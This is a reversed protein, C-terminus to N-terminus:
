DDHANSNLERLLRRLRGDARSALLEEHRRQLRLFESRTVNLRELRGGAFWSLPPLPAAGEGALRLMRAAVGDFFRGAAPEPPRPSRRLQRRPPRECGDAWGYGCRVSNFHTHLSEPSFRHEEVGLFAQLAQLALLPRREFQETYLVLLQEAPFHRLWNLLFVPYDSWGAVNAQASCYLDAAAELEADGPRLFRRAQCGGHQMWHLEDEVRQEFTLDAWYGKMQQQEVFRSEARALPERLIAILKLDPFLSRFKEPCCPCSFHTATFDGLLAGAENQKFTKDHELFSMYAKDPWLCADWRLEEQLAGGTAWFFNEKRHGATFIKPHQTILNWVSSTGSKQQGLLMFSVNKVELHQGSQVREGSTQLKRMQFEPHGKQWGPQTPVAQQFINHQASGPFFEEQKDLQPISLTSRIFCAFLFLLSFIRQESAWM